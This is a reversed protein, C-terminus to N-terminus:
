DVRADNATKGADKLGNTCEGDSSVADCWAHATETDAEWTKCGGTTGKCWCDTVKATAAWGDTMSISSNHGCRISAAEALPSISATVVSSIVLFRLVNRM